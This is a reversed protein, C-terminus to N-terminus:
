LKLDPPTSPAQNALPPPATVPLSQRPKNQSKFQAIEEASLQGQLSVIEQNLRHAVKRAKRLTSAGELRVTQVATQVGLLASGKGYIGFGFIAWAIAAFSLWLWLAWSSTYALALILFVFGALACLLAVVNGSKTPCILVAEIDQFRIRKITERYAGDVILLHDKALYCRQVSM